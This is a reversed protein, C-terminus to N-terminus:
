SVETTKTTEAELERLASLLLAARVKEAKRSCRNFALAEGILTEAYKIRTM